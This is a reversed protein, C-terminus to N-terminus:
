KTSPSPGLGKLPQCPQLARIRQDAALQATRDLIHESMAHPYYTCTIRFIHRAHEGAMELMALYVAMDPAMDWFTGTTPDELHQDPILHYLAIRFTRLHSTAWPQQRYSRNRRVARSPPVQFLITGDTQRLTNYTMWVDEGSYVKNLFRLVGPDPLWDDGNLEIGVSDEEALEFGKLNNALMGLRDSRRIFEVRHDPHDLLWAEVLTATDDTSADDIFIHRFLDSPYKQDYVSQLCNVAVDGMNRQASVVHFRQMKRPHVVAYRLIEFCRGLARRLLLVHYRKAFWDVPSRVQMMIRLVRDDLRSEKGDYRTRNSLCSADSWRPSAAPM